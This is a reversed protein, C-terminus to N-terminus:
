LRMGLSKGVLVSLSSSLDTGSKTSVEVILPIIKELRHKAIKERFGSSFQEDVIIIAVDPTKFARSLAEEAEGVSRVEVGLVGVMRFGVVLDRSGIVFGQLVVGFLIWLDTSLLDAFLYCGGVWFVKGFFM